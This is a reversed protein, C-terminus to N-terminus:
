VSPKLGYPVIGFSMSVAPSLPSLGFSSLGSLSISFWGKMLLVAEAIETLSLM